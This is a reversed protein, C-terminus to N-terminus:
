SNIIEPYLQEIEISVFLLVASRTTWIRLGGSCCASAPSATV